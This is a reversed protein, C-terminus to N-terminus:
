RSLCLFKTHEKHLTPEDSTESQLTLRVIHKDPRIIDQVAVKKTTGTIALKTEEKLECVQDEFLKSGTRHPRGTYGLFRKHELLPGAVAQVASVQWFPKSFFRSASRFLLQCIFSNNCSQYM